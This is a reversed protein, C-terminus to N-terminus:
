RAYQENSVKDMKGIQGRMNIVSQREVNQGISMKDKSHQYFNLKSVVSFIECVDKIRFRTSNRNVLNNNGFFFVRM